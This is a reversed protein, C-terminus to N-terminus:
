MHVVGLNYSNNEKIKIAVEKFVEKYFIMIKADASSKYMDNFYLVCNGSNSAKTVVAKYLKDGESLAIDNIFSLKCADEEDKEIIRIAGKCAECTFEDGIYIKSGTSKIVCKEETKEVVRASYDVEGSLYAIIVVDDYEIKEGSELELSFNINVSNKFYPYVSSPKLRYVHIKDKVSNEDILIKVNHYYDTKLEISEGEFPLNVFVYLGSNKKIPKLKENGMFFEFRGKLLGRDYDDELKLVYDVVKEIVISSRMM